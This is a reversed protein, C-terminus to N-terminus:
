MTQHSLIFHIFKHNTMCVYFNRYLPNRAQSVLDKTFSVIPIYSIGIIVGTHLHGSNSVDTTHYVIFDKQIKKIAVYKHKNCKSSWPNLRFM